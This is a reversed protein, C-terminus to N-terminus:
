VGLSAADVPHRLSTQGSAGVLNCCLALSTDMGAMGGVGTKSQREVDHLWTAV